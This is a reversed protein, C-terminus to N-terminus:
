AINEEMLMLERALDGAEVSHTKELADLKALVANCELEADAVADYWEDTEEADGDEDLEKLHAFDREVAEADDVSLADTFIGSDCMYHWVGKILTEEYDGEICKYKELLGQMEAALETSMQLRTTSTDNLFTYM